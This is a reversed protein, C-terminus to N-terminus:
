NNKRKEAKEDLKQVYVLVAAVAEYLEFPIEGGIELGVLTRALEPESYVPINLERAKALIREALSGCGSAIVKPAADQEPDYSLAAAMKKPKEM